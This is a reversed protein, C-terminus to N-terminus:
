KFLFLFIYILLCIKIMFQYPSTCVQIYEPNKITINLIFSHYQEINNMISLFLCHTRKEYAHRIETDLKLNGYNDFYLGILKM